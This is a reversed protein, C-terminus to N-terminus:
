VGDSIRPTQGVSLLCIISLAISIIGAYWAATYNGFLDFLWGGLWSGLAAGIAGGLTVFGWVTGPSNRAFIRRTLDPLVPVYGSYAIGMLVSALYLPVTKAGLTPLIILIAPSIVGFVFALIAAWKRDPMKDALWGVMPAAVVNTGTVLGVAGAAMSLSIGIDTAFAVEQSLIDYVGLSLFFLTGLLGWFSLSSFVERSNRGLAPKAYANHQYSIKLCLVPIFLGLWCAIGLILMAWRWQLTEILKGAIPNLVLAGLGIGTGMIGLALGRRKEFQRTVMLSSPVQGIGSSGLGFLLGYIVIFQWYSTCVATLVFALGALVSGAAIVRRPGFREVLFGTLPAALGYIVMSAALGASIAGRSTAFDGTLPKEFLGFSNRMGYNFFLSLFAVTVVYWQRALEGM